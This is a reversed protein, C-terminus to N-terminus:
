TTPPAAVRLHERERRHHHYALGAITIGLGIITVCTLLVLIAILPRDMQSMKVM